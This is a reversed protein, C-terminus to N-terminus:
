ADRGGCECSEKVFCGDGDPIVTYGKGSCIACESGPSAERPTGPADNSAEPGEDGDDAPRFTGRIGRIGKLVAHVHELSVPEEDVSKGAVAQIDKLHETCFEWGGAADDESPLRFLWQLSDPHKYEVGDLTFLADLLFGRVAHRRRRERRALTEPTGVTM